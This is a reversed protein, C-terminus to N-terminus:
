TPSWIERLGDAIRRGQARGAEVVAPRRSPDMLNPGAAEKTAEDFMVIQVKAGVAELEGKEAALQSAILQSIGRGSAGMTSIILVADPEIRQALDASTGSRVGGDTYRRGDITVPPFMGPVSCSSAVAREIPVRSDGDWVALEGSECNVATIWLQKQPWGGFDIDAFGQVWDDEPATKAELALRGVQACREPTMHDFSAWLQFVAAMQAMDPEPAAATRPTNQRPPEDLLDRADRGHAVHTGVVSGASTGIILDAERVDLGADLLGAVIATEWAIGVAGGGGLVLARKM